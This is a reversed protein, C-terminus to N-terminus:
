NKIISYKTNANTTINRFCQKILNFFIIKNIKLKLNSYQKYAWLKLLIKKLKIIPLSQKVFTSSYGM